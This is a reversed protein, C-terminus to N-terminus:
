RLWNELKLGPVRAFHRENGSVLTADRSVVISAIRLDPDALRTGDRELRACIPGYAEAARRDFDLVTVDKLLGMARVYLDPRGTRVAGFALEGLTISTTALSDPRARRLRQVFREAPARRLLESVADTDLVIM